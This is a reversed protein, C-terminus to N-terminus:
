DILPAPATGALRVSSAGPGLTAQLVSGIQRYSVRHSEAGPERNGNWGHRQKQYKETPALGYPGTPRPEDCSLGRRVMRAIAQATSSMRAITWAIAEYCM